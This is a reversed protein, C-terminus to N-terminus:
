FINDLFTNVDDHLTLESSYGEFQILKLANKATNVIVEEPSTESIGMNTKESEKDVSNAVVTEVNVRLSKFVDLDRINLKIIVDIAAEAVAAAQDDTLEIIPFYKPIDEIVEFLTSNQTIGPYPLDADRGLRIMLDVVNERNSLEPNWDPTYGDHFRQEIQQVVNYELSSDVKWGQIETEVMSVLGKIFNKIEDPGFPSAGITSVCFVVILVFSFNM